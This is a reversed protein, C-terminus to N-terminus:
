LVIKQRIIICMAPWGTIVNGQYGPSHMTHLAAVCHHVHQYMLTFYPHISVILRIIHHAIIHLIIRYAIIIAVGAM